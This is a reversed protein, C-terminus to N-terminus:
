CNGSILLRFKSININHDTCACFFSLFMFSIFLQLVGIMASVTTAVRINKLVSQLQPVCGESYILGTQNAQQANSVIEPCTTENALPNTTNCCSVPVSLNNFINEYDTFAMVGCCKINRQVNDFKERAGQNSLYNNFTTNASREITESLQRSLMLVYITGSLTSLVSPLFLHVFLMLLRRMSQKSKEQAGSYRIFLIHAIGGLIMVVGVAVLLASLIIALASFYSTVQVLAWAGVVIVPPGFLLLPLGHSIMYGRWCYLKKRNGARGDWWFSNSKYYLLEKNTPDNMLPVTEDATPEMAFVDLNNDSSSMTLWMLRCVIEYIKLDHRSSMLHLGCM